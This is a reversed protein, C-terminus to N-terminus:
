SILKLVCGSDCSIYSFNQILSKVYSNQYKMGMRLCTMKCEHTMDCISVVHHYGCTLCVCQRSVKAHLWCGHPLLAFVCELMISHAYSVVAAHPVCGAPLVQSWQPLLAFIRFVYRLGERCDM